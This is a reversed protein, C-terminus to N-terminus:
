REILVRIIYPLLQPKVGIHNDATEIEVSSKPQKNKLINSLVEANKRSDPRNKQYQIVIKRGEQMANEIYLLVQRLDESECDQPSCICLCVPQYFKKNIKEKYYDTIKFHNIHLNLM